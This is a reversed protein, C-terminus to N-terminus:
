TWMEELLFKQINWHKIGDDIGALNIEHMVTEQRQLLELDEFNM